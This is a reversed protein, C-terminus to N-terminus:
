NFCIGRNETGAANGEQDFPGFDYMLDFVAQQASRESVSFLLM